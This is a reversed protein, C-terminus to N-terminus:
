PHSLPQGLSHPKLFKHRWAATSTQPQPISAVAPLANQSQPGTTFPCPQSLAAIQSGPDQIQSKPKGALGAETACCCCGRRCCRCCCCRTRSIVVVVVVVVVALVAPFPQWQGCSDMLAECERGSGQIDRDRLMELATNFDKPKPAPPESTLSM